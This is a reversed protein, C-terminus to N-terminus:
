GVGTLGVVTVLGVLDTLGVVTVWGVGISGVVTM